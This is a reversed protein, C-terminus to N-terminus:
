GNLPEKRLRLMPRRLSILRPRARRPPVPQALMPNPPATADAHTSM